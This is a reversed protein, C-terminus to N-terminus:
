QGVSLSGGAQRPRGHSKTTLFGPQGGALGSKEGRLRVPPRSLSSSAQANPLSTFIRPAGCAGQLEIFPSTLLFDEGSVARPLERRPGAGRSYPLWVFNVTRTPNMIRDLSRGCRHSLRCALRPDFIGVITRDSVQLRRSQRTTRPPRAHPPSQRWPPRQRFELNLSM